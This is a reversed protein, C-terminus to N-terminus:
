YIKIPTTCQKKFTKVENLNYEGGRGGIYVYKVVCM